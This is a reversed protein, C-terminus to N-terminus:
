AASMMNITDTLIQELVSMTQAAAQYANQFQILNQTEEDINIGDISQRTQNISNALTTQTNTGTIATQADLGITTVLTGYTQGLTQTQATTISFGASHTNSFQATFTTEGNALHDVSLVVVNEQPSPPPSQNTPNPQADVTLVDGAQLNAFASPDGSPPYITTPVSTSTVATASTTQLAGDGVPVNFVNLLANAGSNDGAGFANLSNQAVGSISAAGLALLLSPANAGSVLATGSASLQTYDSSNGSYSALTSGTNNYFDTITFSPTTAASAQNARFFLDTNSPDASFVITQSTANWSATVGYDGNNFNTIFDDVTDADGGPATNYYFAQVPPSSSISPTIGDISITLYGQIGSPSAPPNNLTVNGDLYAATDITNNASNAATVLSGASTSVLAATVQSPDTIGVTINAATVAAGSLSSQFLGVGANGNGDLSAETVRDVENALTSAFDNLSNLYPTLKNNYLDVLAGLQGSSGLDVPSASAAEGQVSVQLQLVGNSNTGLSPTSLQYVATDNVLALGDLTVLASGNSQLATQVPVYQSLQDILYDRQDEYTNPSQGAATSARIQGNLAGIQDLIGNVTTVTSQAQQVVQTEQTQIGASTTNLAGALLQAQQIVSERTATDAPNASLSQIATQFSTLAANIGNSPENFTSQTVDLQQQEVQYFNQSATAGRFLTDFSDQHIRSISSVVVGNGLTGPAFSTPSAPSGPDPQAETFNVVERSAGPTDVNAINDSTVNAAVQAADLASGILNLGYFSM